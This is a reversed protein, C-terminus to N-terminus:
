DLASLEPIFKGLSTKSKIAFYILDFTLSNSPANFLIIAWVVSTSLFIVSSFVISTKDSISLAFLLNIVISSM